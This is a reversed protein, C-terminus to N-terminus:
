PCVGARQLSLLEYKRLRRNFAGQLGAISRRQQPPLTKRDEATREIWSQFSKRTGPLNSGLDLFRALNSLNNRLHSYLDVAVPTRLAEAREVAKRDNEATLWLWSSIAACMEPDNAFKGVARENVLKQGYGMAFNHGTRLKHLIERRSADVANRSVTALALDMAEAATM